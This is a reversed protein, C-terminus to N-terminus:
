FTGIQEIQGQQQMVDTLSYRSRIVHERAQLDRMVTHVPKAKIGLFSLRNCKQNATMQLNRGHQPPIDIIGGRNLTKCLLHPRRLPQFHKTKQRIGINLRDVRFRESWPLGLINPLKVHSRSVAHSPSGVLPQVRLRLLIFGKGPKFARRRFRSRLQFNEKISHWAPVQSTETGFFNQLMKSHRVRQGAIGDLKM